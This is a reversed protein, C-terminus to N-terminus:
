QADVFTWNRAAGKAQGIAYLCSQFAPDFQQGKSVPQCAGPLHADPPPAALEKNSVYSYKFTGPLGLDRWDHYLKYVSDIKSQHVMIDQTVRLIIGKGASGGLFAGLLTNAIPACHSTHGPDQVDDCAAAEAAGLAGPDNPSQNGNVILRINVTVDLPEGNLEGAGAQLQRLGRMLADIFALFRTGGDVFPQSDIFRPPFALPVAASALLSQTLCDFKLAGPEALEDGLDFAYFMGDDLNVAGVLASTRDHDELVPAISVLSGRVIKELGKPDALGNSGIVSLLPNKAVYLDKDSHSYFDKLKALTDLAERHQGRRELISASWVIPTMLAGTSIGTIFNYDALGLEPPEGAPQPTAAGAYLGSLFGSGYAGWQGGGSLVLINIAVKRRPRAASPLALAPEPSPAMATLRALSRLLRPHAAAAATLARSPGGAMPPSVRVSYPHDASEPVVEADKLCIVGPPRTLPACAALVLPACLAAAVHRWSRRSLDIHM